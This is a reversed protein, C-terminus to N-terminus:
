PERRGEILLFTVIKLRCKYTSLKVKKKHIESTNGSEDVTQRSSIFMRRLSRSAQRKQAITTSIEKLAQTVEEMLAKIQKSREKDKKEHRAKVETHAAEMAKKCEDWKKNSKAIKEEICEMTKIVGVSEDKIRFVFAHMQKSSFLIPDYNNSANVEEGILSNIMVFEEQPFIAHKELQEMM